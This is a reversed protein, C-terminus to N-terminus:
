GYTKNTEENDTGIETEDMDTKSDNEVESENKNDNDNDTKSDKGNDTEPTDIEKLPMERKKVGVVTTKKPTTKCLFTQIGKNEPQTNQNGQSSPTHAKKKKMKSVERM